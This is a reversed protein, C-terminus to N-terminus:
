LVGCRCTIALLTNTIHGQGSVGVSTCPQTFISCADALVACARNPKVHRSCAGQGARRSDYRGWECARTHQIRTHSQFCGQEIFPEIFAWPQAHLAYKRADTASGPDSEYVENDNNACTWVCVCPGYVHRHVHRYVHGYTDIDAHRHACTQVCTRVSVRDDLFHHM